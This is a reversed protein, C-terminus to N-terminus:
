KREIERIYEILSESFGDLHTWRGYGVGNKYSAVNIMYSNASPRPNSVTDHSQEDTIVILRDYNLQNIYVMAKGLNTGGHSQSHQVADRLAFGRRAPVQMIGESFTFIEVNDCVERLLIGLGAAADIRSVESKGSLKADMSGSVDILLITKGKLKTKSKLCRFLCGELEKEFGPNHVAATIFRFPLVREVDLEGLADSIKLKPVDVQTMNRINRILALAGLEKAKLLKLWVSNKAADITEKIKKYYAERQTSSMEDIFKQAKAITCKRAKAVAMVTSESLKVEWTNPIPLKDDILQKWTKEQTKNQPKAHCLFLVDRLKIANDRNYKALNYPSFKNFAMALGKKVQASLPQKKEKWYLAIFEALEDARQIVNFLTWSVIGIPTKNGEPIIQENVCKKTRAMERVVLLPAHRLKMKERAEIALSSVFEPSCKGVLTAIREAIAVGNEYFQDEWLLCAMLTRRLELDANIRKAPAGEHTVPRASLIRTNTKSM